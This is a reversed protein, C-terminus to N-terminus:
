LEGRGCSASKIKQDHVISIASDVCDQYDYYTVNYSGGLSMVVTLIWSEIM